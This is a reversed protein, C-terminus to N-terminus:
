LETHPLGDMTYDVQELDMNSIRNLAPDLLDIRQALKIPHKRDTIEDRQACREARLRFTQDVRAPKRQHLRRREQDVDRAARDDILVGDVGRQAVAPNASGREIHPPLIRIRGLRFAARRSMGKVFQRVDDHGRM